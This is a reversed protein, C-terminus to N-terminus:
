EPSCCPEEIECASCEKDDKERCLPVELKYFWTLIVFLMLTAAISTLYLGAGVALGIAAVVWLSAATTLGMVRRKSQIIAGAGLFGIGSVVQAAIRAPDANNVVGGPLQLILMPMSLSVLMFLCSGMTVLIHTRFGASHNKKEREMGILGGLVLALVLRGTFVLEYQWMNSDFYFISM